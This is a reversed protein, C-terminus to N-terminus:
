CNGINDKYPAMVCCFQSLSDNSRISHNANTAEFLDISFISTTATVAVNLLWQRAKRKHPASLCCSQVLSNSIRIAGRNANTPDVLLFWSLQTRFQKRIGRCEIHIVSTKGVAFRRLPTVNPCQERHKGTVGFKRFLFIIGWFWWMLVLRLIMVCSREQVCLISSPDSITQAKNARVSVILLYGIECSEAIARYLCERQIKIWRNTPLTAFGSKKSILVDADATRPTKQNLKTWPLPYPVSENEQNSERDNSCWRLLFLTLRAIRPRLDHTKMSLSLLNPHIRSIAIDREREREREREWESVRCQPDDTESTLVMVCGHWQDPARHLPFDGAVGTPRAWQWRM